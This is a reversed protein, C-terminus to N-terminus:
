TRLGYRTHLTELYDNLIASFGPPQEPSLQSPKRIGLIYQRVDTYAERTTRALQNLIAQVERHQGQQLRIQATMTQTRIYGLVQALDDHLERGIREREELAALQLENQHIRSKSLLREVTSGLSEAIAEILDQEESLFPEGPPEAGETLICVEVLGSIRGQVNIDAALKWPSERYNATRFERGDLIVRAITTEPHQFSPPILDVSGQLIEDLSIDPTMILRSINYLCSLEKLREGLAYTLAEKEADIQVRRTIDRSGLTLGTIESSGPLRRPTVYTEYYIESGDPAHYTTEYQAPKGTKLVGELVGKVYESGEDVYEYLPTGILDQVMLGPSPYNVLEINLDKDLMMIHDPSNEILSRWKSESERLSEEFRKRETIDQTYEILYSINGAGDLIPYSFVEVHQTEGTENLHLHETIVPQKTLRTKQLPCPHERNDCPQDRGHLLRYCTMGQPLPGRFAAANALEVSYNQANIVCFPYSLANLVDKLLINQAVFPGDESLSQENEQSMDIM